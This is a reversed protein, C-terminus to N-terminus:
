NLKRKCYAELGDILANVKRRATRPSVNMERALMELDEPDLPEELLSLLLAPANEKQGSLFNQLLDEVEVQALFKTSRPDLVESSEKLPTAETRKATKSLHHHIATWSYELLARGGPRPPPKGMLWQFGVVIGDHCAPDLIDLKFRRSWAVWSRPLLRRYLEQYVTRSEDQKLSGNEDFLATLDDDAPWM